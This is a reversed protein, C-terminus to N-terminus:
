LKRGAAPSTGTMFNQQKGNAETQDKSLWTNVFRLIGSRTKRKGPNAMCWVRMERFEDAVKVAPYARQFEDLHGQTLEFHSGDTLLLREVVNALEEGKREEGKGERGKGETLSRETLTAEKPPEPLTTKSPRNIVQHKKFGKIHLFNEGNVSYQILLGHDSLSDILESCDILDAPFVQMKIRKVSKVLNGNDDAFNWLGIFFLRAVPDLEVIKEDSWFEPKISRIRAM